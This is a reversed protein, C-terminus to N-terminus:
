RVRVAVRGQNLSAVAGRQLRVTIALEARDGKKKGSLVSAASLLDPTPQGDIGALLYGSKLEARAAPGDPDVEAILVGDRRNYGFNGALEPTMEQVSLGLKQRILDALAVLKATVERREGKRQVALTVERKPGNGIWEICQIFGNPPRGNVREIVDGKQLGAKGAPSDPEVETIALPYPGSKIRAGFWISKTAEPVFMESVAETVQKIPIAFGIGHGQRYIAANLGILEGRLNVLPGGSSGPNIAADTQLWDAVNLPEDELSPRRNKSSLIGRSVSGGLGFPNGLALVTEGLLLDDDRAFKVANFKESGKTILKLLAVDIRPNGLFKPQAEFQRGDALTVWVRNARQVVHLCTLVYGSEDILVGSGLSYHADPQRRRYYPGWFERLMREFPDNSEVITETGINVVSPMVREVAAVTMDRRADSEVAGFAHWSLALGLTLSAAARGPGPLINWVKM